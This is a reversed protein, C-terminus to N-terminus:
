DCGKGKVVTTIGESGSFLEFCILNRAVTGIHKAVEQAALHVLAGQNGRCLPWVHHESELEAARVLIWEPVGPGAWAVGALLLVCCGWAALRGM